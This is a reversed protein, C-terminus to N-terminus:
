CALVLSRCIPVEGQDKCSKTVAKRPHAHVVISSHSLERVACGEDGGGECVTDNDVLGLTSTGLSAVGHRAAGNAKQRILVDLVETHEECKRM